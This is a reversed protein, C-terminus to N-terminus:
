VWSMKKKGFLQWGIKYKKYKGELNSQIEELKNDIEDSFDVKMQLPITTKASVAEGSKLTIFPEINNTQLSAWTKFRGIARLENEMNKDMRLNIVRSIRVEDTAFFSMEIEIMPYGQKGERLLRRANLNNINVSVPAVRVPHSVDWYRWVFTGLMFVFGIAFLSGIIIARLDLQNQILTLGGALAIIGLSFEWFLQSRKRM